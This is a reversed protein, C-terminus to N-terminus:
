WKERQLREAGVGEELALLTGSAAFVALHNGTFSNLEPATKCRDHLVGYPREVLSPAACGLATV